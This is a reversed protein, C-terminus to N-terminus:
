HLDGNGPQMGFAAGIIGNDGALGIEAHQASRGHEPVLIEIEQRMKGGLEDGDQM